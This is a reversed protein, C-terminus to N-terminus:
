RGMNIYNLIDSIKIGILNSVTVEDNVHEELVEFYPSLVDYHEGLEYKIEDYSFRLYEVGDKDTYVEFADGGYLPFDIHNSEGFVDSLKYSDFFLLMDSTVYNYCYKGKYKIYSKCTKNYEVGNVINNEIACDYLLYIDETRNMENLKEPMETDNNFKLWVYKTVDFKYDGWINPIYPLAGVKLYACIIYSDKFSATFIPQGEKGANLVYELGTRGPMDKPIRDNREEGHLSLVFGIDDQNFNEGHTIYITDDNATEVPTLITGEIHFLKDSIIAGMNQLGCGVLASCCMIIVLMLSIKKM